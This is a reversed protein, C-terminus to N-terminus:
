SSMEERLFAVFAVAESHDELLSALSEIQNNSFTPRLLPKGLYLAQAFLVTLPDAAELVWVALRELGRRRLFEVWTPWAARGEPLSVTQM